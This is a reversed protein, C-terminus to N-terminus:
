SRRTDCNAPAPRTVRWVLLGALLLLGTAAAMVGVRHRRVQLRWDLLDHRRQDLERIIDTLGDRLVDVDHELEQPTAAHNASRSVAISVQTPYIM